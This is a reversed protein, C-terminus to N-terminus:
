AWLPIEVDRLAEGSEIEMEDINILSATMGAYMEPIM